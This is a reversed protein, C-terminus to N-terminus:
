NGGLTLIMGFACYRGTWSVIGCILHVKSSSIVPELQASYGSNLVTLEINTVSM